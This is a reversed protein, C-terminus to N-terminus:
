ARLQTPGAVLRVVLAMPFALSCQLYNRSIWAIDAGLPILVCPQFLLHSSHAYRYFYSSSRKFEDCSSRHDNEKVVWPFGKSLFSHLTSGSWGAVVVPCVGLKKYGLTSLSTQFSLNTPRMFIHDACNVRHPKLRHCSSPSYLMCLVYRFTSPVPEGVRLCDSVAKRLPLRDM